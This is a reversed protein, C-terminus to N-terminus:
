RWLIFGKKWLGVKNKEATEEAAKFEKKRAYSAKQYHEAMGQEILKKNVDEGDDSFVYALLRGYRDERDGKPDFMLCVKENKQVMNQLATKASKGDKNPTDDERYMEPTNIGLFRIKNRDKTHVTDGDVVRYVTKWECNTPFEFTAVIEKQEKPIFDTWSVPKKPLDSQCATLFLGSLLILKPLFQKM